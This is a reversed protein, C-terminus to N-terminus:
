THQQLAAVWWREARELDGDNFALVQQKAVGEAVEADRVNRAHANKPWDRRLSPHLGAQNEVLQSPM